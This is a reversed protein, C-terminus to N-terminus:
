TWYHCRQTHSAAAWSRVFRHLLARESAVILRDRGSSRVLGKTAYMQSPLQVQPVIVAGHGLQLGCANLERGITGVAYRVESDRRRVHIQRRERLREPFVAYQEVAGVCCGQRQFNRFGTVFDTKCFDVPLSNGSSCCARKHQMCRHCWQPVYARRAM